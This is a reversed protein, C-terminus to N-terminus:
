GPLPFTSETEVSLTLVRRHGSIISHSVSAVTLYGIQLCVSAVNCVGELFHSHLTQETIDLVGPNYISGDNFVQQIILGFSFPSINPM